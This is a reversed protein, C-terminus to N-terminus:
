STKGVELGGIHNFVPEKIVQRTLYLNHDSM